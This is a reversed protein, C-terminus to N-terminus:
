QGGAGGLHEGVKDERVEDKERIFCFWVVPEHKHASMQVYQWFRMRLLACSDMVKDKIM